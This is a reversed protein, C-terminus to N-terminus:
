ATQEASAPKSPASKLLFAALLTVLVGIPFIELLTFAAMVWKNNYSARMEELSAISESIEAASKGSQQISEIQSQWYAEMMEVGGGNQYYIMWSIVYIASALVTILLGLQLGQGFTINGDQEKDRQHRIGFYIMSLAALMVTYGVIEGWTPDGGVFSFATYGVILQIAGALLGFILTTRLM